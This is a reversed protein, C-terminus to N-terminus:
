AGLVTELGFTQETWNEQVSVNQTEVTLGDLHAQMFAYAAQLLATMATEDMQLPGNYWAQFDLSVSMQHEIGGVIASQNVTFHPAKGGDLEM